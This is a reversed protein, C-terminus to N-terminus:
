ATEELFGEARRKEGVNAEEDKAEEVPREPISLGFAAAHAAILRHNSM